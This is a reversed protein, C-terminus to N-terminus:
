FTANLGILFTRNTPYADLEIGARRLPDGTIEPSYGSYKTFILPNLATFFVRIRDVKDYFKKFSYGVTVNNIRLFSGDEIYYTSARPVDNFPEPNAANTNSPTWFNKM